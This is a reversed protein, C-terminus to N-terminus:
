VEWKTGDISAHTRNGWLRPLSCRQYANIFGQIAQDLHDESIHHQDVWTIQRRDLTGLARATASPGLQCGYCFVAALYRELPDEIKSEFGSLPGFSATWNLWHNTYALADLISRPTQRAELQRKLDALGPPHAQRRYRRIVPRGDVLKVQDNAPFAQDTTAAITALWCQQTAVFTDPDVPIGLQEGYAAIRAHYEDWSCLRPLPDGFRDAGVVYLDGTHLTTLLQSVVCAEFHRRNVRQPVQDRTPLDTVLRWWGVPIWSLDLAPEDNRTISVWDGKSRAHALLFALAQMLATDQSAARLPLLTLLRFVTARHSRYFQWLFPAFNNGAYTLHAECDQLLTASRGHLVADIAAFRTEASGEQQYRVVVDRLATVLADTRAQHQRGYTQLAEKADHQIARIRKIFMETLDDLTRAYHSALFACALTYRRPPKMDVMIARDYAMAETAFHQRKADPFGAVIPILDQYPDFWALRDAMDGLHTLTPRGTPDKLQDWASRDTPSPVVFLADLLAQREPTLATLVQQYFTTYTKARQRQAEKLLTTFGPLEYYQRLLEEIARNILDDLQETHNAADAIARQIVQLGGAGFPKVGRYARIRAQHRRSSGAHDYAPLQPIQDTRDVCQAIHRVISDPVAHLRVFYGLRQFTKLYILFGLYAVADQTLQAALACEEPTPTYVRELDQPSVVSKLRPYITEQLTPM